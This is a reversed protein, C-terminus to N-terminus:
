SPKERKINLKRYSSAKRIHEKIDVTHLTVNWGRVLARAADGIKAKIETDIADIDKGISKYSASLAERRDLLEPIMNDGTLDVIKDPIEKPYLVSLLPGDRRYDIEAEEENDIKRWFNDAVEILRGEVAPNREMEYLVIQFVWDSLILAGVVGWDLRTLMMQQALQLAIWLPPNEPTWADRFQRHGIVKTELLGPGRTDGYIFFDPTASLRTVTNKYWCRSKLIEWDPKQVGVESAVIPELVNGRRVLASESDAGLMSIGMKEAQLGAPTLRPHVGFLAGIESSGICKTRSKLWEELTTIPLIEICM